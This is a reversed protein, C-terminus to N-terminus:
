SSKMLHNLRSVYSFEDLLVGWGTMLAMDMVTYYYAYMPIPVFDIGSGGWPHCSCVRCVLLPLGHRLGHWMLAQRGYQSCSPYYRCRAPIM